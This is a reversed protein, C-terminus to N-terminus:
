LAVSLSYVTNLQLSSPAKLKCVTFYSLCHCPQPSSACLITTQIRAPTSIIRKEVADLGAIPSV